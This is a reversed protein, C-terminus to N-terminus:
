EPVRGGTQPRLRGSVTLSVLAAVIALGAAWGLATRYGAALEANSTGAGSAVLSLLVAVGVAAGIQRTANILAGALGQEENPVGTSGAVTSGYVLNTTGFGTVFLVVALLPYHTTAPTRFLFFLGTATIVSALFLFRKIGIRQLLRPGLLGRLIGGIGQPLAVLGSALATYGLVQQCYLSVVLVEAALWAGGLGAIIDGAVLQRHHFIAMPMLPDASRREYRVFSAILAAGLLLSVFFPISTWGDNEAFTPSLVSAAMGATVLLAGLLDLHRHASPAVGTPLARWGVLVMVLCIPVNVFFVGRWGVTTVLIGGAVLGAVFGISAMVGYYGLVRNRAPGEQFTTTLISLGAPAVLAAAAGQVARAAVLLVLDGAMGGAASAGAFAVLGCILMRRRGFLDSARGGLVLLGGFALAYATVVWQANTSSVGLQRGISPLAVNVISFDLVVVLQAALAVILGIRGLSPPPELHNTTMEPARETRGLDVTDM